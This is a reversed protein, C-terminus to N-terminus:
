ILMIVILMGFVTGCSIYVKATSSQQEYLEHFYTDLIDVTHEIAALQDEVSVKGLVDGLSRLAFSANESLLKSKEEVASTWIEGIQIVGQTCINTYIDKFFLHVDSQHRNALNAILEPIPELTANLEGRMDRLAQVMARTFCIKKQLQVVPLCGVLVGSIIILISGVFKIM